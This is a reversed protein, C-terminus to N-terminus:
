GDINVEKAEMESMTITFQHNPDHITEFVIEWDNQASEQIPLHLYIPQFEKHFDIIRFDEKWNQFTDELIPTVAYIVDPYSAEIKEFFSNAFNLKDFENGEISIDIKKNIPSFHRKSFFIFKSNKLKCIQMEGFFEDEVSKKSNEFVAKFINLM